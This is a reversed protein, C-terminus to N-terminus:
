QALAGPVLLERVIGALPVLWVLFALIEHVRPSASVVGSVGLVLIFSQFALGPHVLPLERLASSTIAVVLAWLCIAVWYRRRVAFYHVRWSAIAAPAEPVLLTANFYFLAPGVLVVLFAPLTWTIERFSWMLWFSVASAVLQFGVHAAHVWYRRGPDLSDSIGGVLRMVSFSYILSFAITVYEFLSLPQGATGGM